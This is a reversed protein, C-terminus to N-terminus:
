FNSNCRIETESLFYVFSYTLVIAQDGPCHNVAQFIVLLTKSTALGGHFSLARLLSFM